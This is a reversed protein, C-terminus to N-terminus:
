ILDLVDQDLVVGNSLATNKMDQLVKHSKLITKYNEIVKLNNIYNKINLQNRLREQIILAHDKLKVDIKLEISDIENIKKCISEYEYADIM